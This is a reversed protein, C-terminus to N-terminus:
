TISERASRPSCDSASKLDDDVDAVVERHLPSTTVLRRPSSDIWAANRASRRSPAAAAGSRAGAATRRPAPASASRRCSRGGRPAPWPACARRRAATRARRAEVGHAEDLDLGRDELQGVATGRRPGNRVLSLANSWSMSSRIAKSSSRLFAQHAADFPDVLDAPDEAVFADVRRVRRLERHELGILRVAVVVGHRGQHLVQDDGGGLSGPAGDDGRAVSRRDVERAAPPM